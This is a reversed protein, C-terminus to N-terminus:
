KQDKNKDERFNSVIFWIPSILYAFLLAYRAPWRKTKEGVEPSIM